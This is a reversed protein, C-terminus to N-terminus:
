DEMEFMLESSWDSKDSAESKDSTISLRDNPRQFIENGNCSSSILNRPSKIPSISPTQLNEGNVSSFGRSSKVPSNTTYGSNDRRFDSNNISKFGQITMQQLVEAKKQETQRIVAETQHKVIITKFEVEREYDRYNQAIKENSSSAQAIGTALLLICSIIKIKM